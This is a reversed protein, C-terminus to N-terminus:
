SAWTVGGGAAPVPHRRGAHHGLLAAVAAEEDRGRVRRPPQREHRRRRPREDAGVAGPRAPARATATSTCCPSSTTRATRPLPRRLDAATTGADADNYHVGTETIALPYTHAPDTVWAVTKIFNGQWMPARRAARDPQTADVPFQYSDVSAFDFVDHYVITVTADASLNLATGGLTAALKFTNATASVIYYDTTSTLGAAATLLRVRCGNALLHNTATFVNTSASAAV